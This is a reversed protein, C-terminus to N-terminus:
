RSTARRKARGSPPSGYATRYARAFYSTDNFGAAHCVETVTLDTSELLAHAFGLRRRKLFGQFTEGTVARFQESFWHPSLHAVAAADALTLPERFHREIFQVARRVDSARRGSGDQPTRDGSAARRRALEVVLTRLVAEVVVEWGPARGTSESCVRRVDGEVEPLHTSCPLLADGDPVVSELTSEVLDPSLVANLVHLPRAASAELSHLDAPSLVFLSGPVVQETVGNVVHTAEGDLVYGLEYYDHWHVDVSTLRPTQVAFSRPRGPAGDAAILDDIGFREIDARV